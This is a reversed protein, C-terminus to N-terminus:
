QPLGAEIWAVLRLREADSPKPNTGSPDSIPFQAPAPSGTCGSLLTSAVGCRITTSDRQVDTIATFDRMPDRTPNHCEVCYTKFFSQAYSSWTDGTPGGEGGADPHPPPASQSSSSSCGVLLLAASVGLLAARM